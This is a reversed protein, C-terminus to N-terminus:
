LTVRTKGTLLQQMLGRKQTRLSDLHQTHQTIERDATTLVQAIDKQEELPPIAVPIKSFEKWRLSGRRDVSSSTMVRYIHIYLDTKLLPFLFEDCIDSNTRFVTYIPSVLAAEHMEQVGISGEEIHNTAYAYDGHKVVRYNSLDDSYIQKKFYTLSDVLGHHKTCSLVPLPKNEKNKLQSQKAIDEIKCHHWCAPRKGWHTDILPAHEFGPLRTKGTLLQQMLAKKRRTLSDILRHQNEIAQDWTGLIEAIKRQEPLPPLPIPFGQLAELPLRGTGHGAQTVFSMMKKENISLHNGLFYSDLKEENPQIAKVDQNFSVPTQTIGVPFSKMLTMGRVLVLISGVPTLKAGDQIAKDTIKEISTSLRFTKLDKASLWPANGGWYSPNSRSPTGGSTISAIKELKVCEWDVPIEGAPTSKMKQSANLM